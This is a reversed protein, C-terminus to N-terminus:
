KSYATMTNTFGANLAMGQSLRHECIGGIIYALDSAQWKWHTHSVFLLCFLFSTIWLSKFIHFLALANRAIHLAFSHRAHRIIIDKKRLFVCRSLSESFETSIRIPLFIIQAYKSHHRISRDVSLRRQLSMAYHNSFVDHPFSYFCSLWLLHLSHFIYFRLHAKLYVESTM